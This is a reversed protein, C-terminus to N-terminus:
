IIGKYQEQKNQKTKQLLRFKRILNCAQSYNKNSFLFKTQSLKEDEM